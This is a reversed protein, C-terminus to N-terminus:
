PLWESAGMEEIKTLIGKTWTKTQFQYIPDLPKGSKGKKGAAADFFSLGSDLIKEMCPLRQLVIVDMGEDTMRLLDPHMIYKSFAGASSKIGAVLHENLILYSHKPQFFKSDWIKKIHELDDPNPGMFYLGVPLIGYADCFAVLDSLKGFEELVKDGGGLDLVMSSQQEVMMTIMSTLWDMMDSIESTEPQYAGGVTGPPYHKSLTSNKLDGDGILVSRGNSRAYQVLFDLFMSGGTRGRGHRIILKPQALCEMKVVSGTQPPKGEMDMDVENVDVAKAKM